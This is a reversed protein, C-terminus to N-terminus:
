NDISTTSRDRYWFFVVFCLLWKRKKKKEDEHRQYVSLYWRSSTIVKNIEQTIHTIIQNQKLEIQNNNIPDVIHNRKFFFHKMKKWWLGLPVCIGIWARNIENWKESRTGSTYSQGYFM